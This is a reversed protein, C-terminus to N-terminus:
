FTILELIRAIVRHDMFDTLEQFTHRGMYNSTMEALTMWEKHTSHISHQVIEREPRIDLSAQLNLDTRSIHFGIAEGNTLAFLIRTKVDALIQAPTGNYDILKEAGEIRAWVILKNRSM